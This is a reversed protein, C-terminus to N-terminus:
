MESPLSSGVRVERLVIKNENFEETDIIFVKKGTFLEGAALLDMNLLKNAKVINKNKLFSKKEIRVEPNDIKTFGFMLYVNQSDYFIYYSPKERDLGDKTSQCFREQGKGNDFYVYIEDKKQGFCIQSLLIIYFLALKIM